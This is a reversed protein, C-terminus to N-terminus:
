ASREIDAKFTRLADTPIQMHGASSDVAKGGLGIVLEKLEELKKGRNWAAPNNMMYINTGRSGLLEVNDVLARSVYPDMIIFNTIPLGPLSKQISVSQNGSGSFIGINLSKPRGGFPILAKGIDAMVQNWDTNHENPIVIMYKSYWDPVAAEILAPMYERGTKGNVRIGPYFVFVPIPGSVGSPASILSASAESRSHGGPTEIKTSGDAFVNIGFKQKLAWGTKPGVIGDVQLKNGTEDLNSRQFVKVADKTQQDYIGSPLLGLANQVAKVKEQDNARGLKLLDQVPAVTQPEVRSGSVSDPRSGVKKVGVHIHNFHNPVRWGIQYRYGDKIVNIWRGSKLEPHGFWQMLYDFLADGKEGRCAIDVAYAEPNGKYHDSVTNNATLRGSRKQSTISNRKGFKERMFDNAVRAFALARPMSGGWDGGVGGPAVKGSDVEGRELGLSPDSYNADPDFSVAAEFLSSWRSYNLIYNM